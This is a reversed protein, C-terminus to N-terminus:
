HARSMLGYAALARDRAMLHDIVPKPYTLGLTINCEELIPPPATWPRHVYKAPLRALEPVFRRVYDGNPDFKEGQLVPNFIRFYPAADAGSGAVWQWSAPNNAADADVLTDWFWREGERWDILLDKSLFSAVIMRVRNHMWGTHWLERMGADVIPYGTVGGQWARLGDNDSQWAFKEFEPRFSKRDLDPRHFLLHYSFERWGVEKRFKAAGGATSSRLAEMIQLPTVEGFALNPSLSSTRAKGPLDRDREYTPLNTEIFTQLRIQASEEGPTWREALGGSWDPNTPLLDLEDLAVGGVDGCWGNISAPADVPDLADLGGEIARWFPSFVKFFGGSGTKVKSPDHLLAGDYSECRIGRQSLAVELDADVAAEAPVYRRNWVVTDAGSEVAANQAIPLTKGRTFHLKVGLTHLKHALHNLSHHLWWRSAAGQARLGHSEEDLVYLAVIPKGTSAAKALARNDAVRLDRRFLVVTPHSM